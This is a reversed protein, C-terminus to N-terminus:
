IEELYIVSNHIYEARVEHWYWLKKQKDIPHIDESQIGHCIMNVVKLCIDLSMRRPLYPDSAIVNLMMSMAQSEPDLNLDTVM